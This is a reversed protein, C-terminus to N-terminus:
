LHWLTNSVDSAMHFGERPSLSLTDVAPGDPLCSRKFQQQFFRRYFNQLWHEIVVDPCVGNFAIKALRLIKKPSFGNQLAHYLFFDHLEYPGVLEETKQAIDGDKAPLLEPSVPTDLIDALVAQLPKEAHNSLHQVIHRMLTKPISGNIGYMSMHDGNYTAWGLALESLDGTGIVMGGLQNAVDMLVQTRERAQGNEFTIDLQEMSQGIDVFHQAVAKGIPIERFSVGLAEALSQANSKTRGTTGFCPMSIALIESRKKGLKDYTRATVLLALTSDLGGSLGIVATKCHTHTLRKALGSCQLDLIRELRQATAEPTDAPLFPSPSVSRTLPTDSQKLPIAIPVIPHSPVPFGKKRQNQLLDFDVESVTLGVSFLDGEALTVGNEAILRHGGWVLDTTSEGPGAEATLYGCCLRRSLSEQDQKRLAAADVTEPTASPHLMLTVGQEATLKTAPSLPHTWESGIEIGVRANGLTPISFVAQDSPLLPVTQGCLSISQEGHLPTFVRQESATLQTKGVVGLLTGQHFVACANYIGHEVRVPLGVVCAIDLTKTQALLASLAAEAGDLLVTSRFLDGCTAGTLCLEPFVILKCGLTASEAIQNFIAAENAPCDTVAIPPTASGVSLFGDQM